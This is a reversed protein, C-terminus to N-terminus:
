RGTVLWRLRAFFSAGLHAYLRESDRQRAEICLTRQYEVHKLLREYSDVADVRAKELGDIRVSLDAMFERTTTIAQAQRDLTEAVVVQFQRRALEQPRFGANSPM